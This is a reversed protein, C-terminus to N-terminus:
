NTIRVRIFSKCRRCKICLTVEGSAYEVATLKQGCNPCELLKGMSPENQVEIDTKM